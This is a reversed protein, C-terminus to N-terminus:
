LKWTIGGILNNFSYPNNKTILHDKLQKTAPDITKIFYQQQSENRFYQYILSLQIHRGVFFVLTGEIHYDTKDSNNFVILANLINANSYNGWYFLGEVWCWSTVKSGLMQSLLLRTEKGQFFGTLSSTGYFDLNGLPYYTLVGGAQKQTNNNLNSWSGSLGIKFIGLYKTVMLAVVFNNFSTDKQYFSYDYHTFAFTRVTSGTFSRFATDQLTTLRLRSHTMTNSVNIYHFAPLIEFGAPLVATVGFHAEHQNVKYQLSTDHVVWPFSYLYKRGGITDITGQFHDEFRGDALNITKRFNLYNYALSLKLRKFIGLRLGLHGYYSNGYLDEAGSIEQGGSRGAKPNQPPLQLSKKDNSLSYGVEFSVEEVFRNRTNATDNEGKTRKAKILEAEDNRNILLYSRYLYDTIVPDGSNFERAKNLHVVAPFYEKKVFYSIGMRVRLYYYDIGQRLAKKGVIIVSDWKQENFCQYTLKDVTVFDLKTGPKAVETFFLIFILFSFLAKM